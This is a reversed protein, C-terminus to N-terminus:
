PQKARPKAGPRNLQRYMESGFYLLEVEQQSFQYPDTGALVQDLLNDIKDSTFGREFLFKAIKDTMQLILLLEPKPMANGIERTGDSELVGSDKHKSDSTNSVGLGEILYNRQSRVCQANPGFRESIFQPNMQVLERVSINRYDLIQLSQADLVNNIRTDNPVLITWGREQLKTVQYGLRKPDADARIFTIKNRIARLQAEISDWKHKAPGPAENLSFWGPGCELDPYAESPGDYVLRDIALGSTPPESAVYVNVVFLATRGAPCAYLFQAIRSAFPLKKLGAVMQGVLHSLSVANGCYTKIFQTAETDNTFWVDVDSFELESLPRNHILAPVIFDRVVGGFAYGHHDAAGKLLRLVYGLIQYDFKHDTSLVGKFSREKPALAKVQKAIKVSLGQLQRSYDLESCQKLLSSLRGSSAQAKQALEELQAISSALNDTTSITKESTSEMNKSQIEGIIVDL